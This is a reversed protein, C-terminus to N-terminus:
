STIATKSEMGEIEQVFRPVAYGPLAKRLQDMLIKGEELPVEFHAAGAVRDLQHLYYPLIGHDSLLHFLEILTEARDNIEKLLVTQSLVAIGLRQLRNLAGFIDADLERPHNCHIVFFVKLRTQSLLSLFDEDIREPIGIPFRTHFRLKTLHDIQDLQQILSTLSANSLSLPDGGSLIVEKLTSDARILDLEQTYGPIATEYDLHQRFCFRCNMACAGTTLLLARGQYKTLLKRSKRARGDGVPDFEFLPFAQKELQTPLFQKLIPDNLSGKAIKEALRRPLNLPFHSDKFICESSKIELYTVLEEWRTFNEKQIKRWVSM